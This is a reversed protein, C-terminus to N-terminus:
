RPFAYAVALVACVALVLIGALLRPGRPTKKEAVTQGASVAGSSSSAVERRLRKLDVGIDGARQYRLNRDKEMAKGIVRQLESSIHNYQKESEFLDKHLIQDFTAGVSDGKFPLVGTAMEFLVVGFSFLNTRADLGRGLVQEPPMYAIAGITTGPSTLQESDAGITAMTANLDSQGAGTRTGAVRALGFDLVKAHGRKTVFINAPKIDRRVIGEAHAADLADCAGIAVDLLEEPDVPRGSILYKLTVGDLFEM